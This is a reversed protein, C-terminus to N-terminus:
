WGQFQVPSLPAAEAHSDNLFAQQHKATQLDKQASRLQKLAGMKLLENQLMAQQATIRANLELIAKQDESNGIDRILVKLQGFRRAVDDFQKAQQAQYTAAQQAQDGALKGYVNDVDQFISPDIENMNELINRALSGIGRYNHRGDLMNITTEWDDPLRRYDMNGLLWEKGRQGSISDYAEKAQDLQAKMQELQAVLKAIKAAAEIARQVISAVDTVPIQARAIPVQVTTGLLVALCATLATTKFNM